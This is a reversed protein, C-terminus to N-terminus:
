GCFTAVIKGTGSNNPGPAYGPDTKVVVIRTYNGSLTNGSKTVKSTVVVGMYSPVGGPPPPSNGGSTTWTASCITAPTTTPLPVSLIFGKFPPPAQGGSLSNLLYWNNSWWTVTTSPTAAAATLNGLAFVGSSPFAFVIATTTASAAQYAADGAFSAGVTQAGLPVSVSPITCTVNGTANTMGTCSNSGVSLTVSEAPNPGVGGADGDADNAGEEVLRASLTAGSAGALIVTPGSYTMTTEEPTISFSRGDSSALDYTDGAFSVSMTKTGTQHPTITCSAVGSADTTQTCTDGTGLTFTLSKGSIPTGDAPDTLTASATFADHYHSTLAGGYSVATEERNVTFSRSDGSPLYGDDGAFSASVTYGSGPLDSPTVSCTAVGSAGTTGTCSEGGVVFSITKGPVGASTSSNTLIASLTVSDNYDGSTAGTYTLTTPVKVYTFQDAGSAASTGAATTATVDVTGASGAPSVARIHTSDLWTV